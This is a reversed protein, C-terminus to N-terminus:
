LLQRAAPFWGRFDAQYGRGVGTLWPSLRQRLV